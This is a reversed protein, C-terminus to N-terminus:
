KGMSKRQNENINCKKFKKITRWGWGRETKSKAKKKTQKKTKTKTKNKKIEKQVCKRQNEQLKRSM